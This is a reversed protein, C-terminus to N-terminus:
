GGRSIIMWLRRQTKLNQPDEHYPLHNGDSASKWVGSGGMGKLNHNFCQMELVLFGNWDM